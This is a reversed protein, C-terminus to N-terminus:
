TRSMSAAARRPEPSQADMVRRLTPSVNAAGPIPSAPKPRTKTAAGSPRCSPASGAMPTPAAFGHDLCERLCSNCCWSSPSSSPYTAGCTGSLTDGMGGPLWLCARSLAVAGLAAPMSVSPWASTMALSSPPTFAPSAAAMSDGRQGRKEGEPPTRRLGNRVGSRYARQRLGATFGFATSERAASLKACLGWPHMESRIHRSGFAAFWLARASLPSPCVCRREDRPVRAQACGLSAGSSYVFLAAASPRPGQLERYLVTESPQRVVRPTARHTHSRYPNNVPVPPFRTKM